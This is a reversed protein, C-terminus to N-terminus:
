SEVGWVATSAIEPFIKALLNGEAGKEAVVLSEGFKYRHKWSM